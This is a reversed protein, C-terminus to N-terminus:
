PLYLLDEAFIPTDSKKKRNADNREISTRLQELLTHHEVIRRGQNDFSMPM